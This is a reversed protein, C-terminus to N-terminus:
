SPTDLDVAGQRFVTVTGDDDIRAVTSATGGGLGGDVILAVPGDLGAAARAPDSPTRRGSLNASTASLPGVRRALERVFPHDPCRIGVTGDASGVHDAIYAKRDVVLTLGGPWHEIAAARAPESFHGLAEAQDIDSVLVSVSRDEPRRKLDFPRERAERDGAIVALGYVTDTPVIIPHGANIAALAADLGEADAHVTLQDQPQITM